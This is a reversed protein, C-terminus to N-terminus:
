AAMAQQKRYQALALLLPTHEAGATHSKPSRHQDTIERMTPGFNGRFKLLSQDTKVVKDGAPGHVFYSQEVLSQYNGNPHPGHLIFEGQDAATIVHSQTSFGTSKTMLLPKIHDACWSNRAARAGRLLMSYTPRIDRSDHLADDLVISGFGETQDALGTDEAYELFHRLVLGGMSQCIINPRETRMTRLEAAVGACVQEINFGRDPYDAVILNANRAMPAVTDFLKKGNMQCGPLVVITETNDPHHQTHFQAETRLAHLDHSSAFHDVAVAMGLGLALTGGHLLDPSHQEHKQILELM